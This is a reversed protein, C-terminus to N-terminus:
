GSALSRVNQDCHAGHKEAEPFHLEIRESKLHRPDADIM